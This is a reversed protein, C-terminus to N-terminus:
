ENLRWDYPIYNIKARESMKVQSYRNLYAGLSGSKTFDGKFWSFLESLEAKEKQIRNREPDNIFRRAARELQAELKDAVYAENALLPCSFSACNIAFHIRPEDFEKRLIKHEIEDLSAKKGGISFFELHWVTNILPINLKPGIDQITKVPYHDIILKVTFANYANIWYALQEDISWSSRDPPHTSLLDLYSVLLDKNRIFGPYDVTGDQRVHEKLLGDFIQHSPPNTGKMGLSSTGCSPPIWLLWLLLFFKVM